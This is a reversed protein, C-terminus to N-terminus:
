IFGGSPRCNGVTATDLSEGGSLLNVVVLVEAALPAKGTLPINKIRIEYSISRSAVEVSSAHTLARM